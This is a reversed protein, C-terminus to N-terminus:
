PYNIEYDITDFAPVFFQDQWLTHQGNKYLTYAIDHNFNGGFDWIRSTQANGYFRESAGGGLNIGLYEDSELSDVNILFRVWGFATIQYNMFQIGGKSKVRYAELGKHGYGPPIYHLSRKVTEGDVGIFYTEDTHLKANLTFSMSSDTWMEHIVPYSYGCGWCGAHDERYLQVKVPPHDIIEETGYTLVKGVITTDKGFKSCSTLTLLLIASILNHAKYFFFNM